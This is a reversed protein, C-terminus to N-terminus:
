EDLNDLGKIRPDDPAKQKLIEFYDKYRGEVREFLARWEIANVTPQLKQLTKMLSADETFGDAILIGNVLMKTFEQGTGKKDIASQVRTVYRELRMLHDYDALVGPKMLELIVIDRRDKICLLDFRRGDTKDKATYEADTETLIIRIWKDVGKEHYIDKSSLQEYEHGLLWPHEKIFEQM